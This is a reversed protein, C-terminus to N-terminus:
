ADIRQTDAEKDLFRRGMSFNFRSFRVGAPWFSEEYIAERLAPMVGVMFTKNNQIKHKLNLCKVYISDCDTSAKKSIYQKIAEETVQDKIRSIYLWIRRESNRGVFGSALNEDTDEARGIYVANRRKHKRNIVMKFQEAEAHGDIDAPHQVMQRQESVQLSEEKRLNYKKKKTNYRKVQEAFTEEINTQTGMRGEKEIDQLVQLTTTQNELRVEEYGNMKERLLKNNEVLLENKEELEKIIRKLYNIEVQHHTEKPELLENETNVEEAYKCKTHRDKLCSPHFINECDTCIAPTNVTKKCYCCNLTKKISFLDSKTRGSEFHEM